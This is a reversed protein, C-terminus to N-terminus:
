ADQIMAPICLIGGVIVYLIMVPFFLAAFGLVGAVRVLKSESNQTLDLPLGILEPISNIFEAIRM